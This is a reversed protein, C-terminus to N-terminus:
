FDSPLNLTWTLGGEFKPPTVLASFRLDDDSKCVLKFFTM